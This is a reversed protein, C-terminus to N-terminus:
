QPFVAVESLGMKRELKGVALASTQRVGGTERMDNQAKKSMRIFWNRKTCGRKRFRGLEILEDAPNCGELTQKM